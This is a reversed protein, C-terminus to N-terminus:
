QEYSDAVKELSPIVCACPTSCDFSASINELGIADASQQLTVRRSKGTDKGISAYLEHSVVLSM